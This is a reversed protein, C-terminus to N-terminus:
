DYCIVGDRAGDGLCMDVASKARGMWGSALLLLVM